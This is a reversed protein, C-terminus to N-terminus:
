DRREVERVSTEDSSCVLGGWYKADTNEDRHSEENPNRRLMLAVPEWLKM